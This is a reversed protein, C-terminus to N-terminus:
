SSHIHLHLKNRLAQQQRCYDAFMLESPLSKGALLALPFTFFLRSSIILLPSLALDIDSTVVSGGSESTRLALIELTLEWNRGGNEDSFRPVDASGTSDSACVSGADM